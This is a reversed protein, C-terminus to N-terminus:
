EGAGADVKPKGAGSLRDAYPKFSIERGLFDTVLEAAPKAGGQSLVKDRYAGSTEVNRLGEAEFRTFMDTAIALSWQYTYYIASYGNLHGFSTFFHAEEQPEFRTFERTLEDSMAKIDLGQPDRNYLNLSLAAFMLQRRTGIGLGFDRAAIMRELLDQPLTEGEANRAFSSITEYDWVWEQLMQSPAEVFDWETSIGSVNFWDHGGALLYHILHGFEHLFTVVQSHQMLEEGRPFNCLLSAMPLQEGAIGNQMPFVAAHQYKGERPHMDLYFRGILKDGDWLEFAEVEEQWTFTEWPKITLGFLDQILTLMGDRTASYNFYQRVIKSDVEFHEQRVKESLFARQWAEVREADPQDHRLRELLTDYDRDQAETTYEKLESLFNDVRQPSGVMKDATVLEAYNQFGLLQALEFRLALLKELIELNQPYARNSYLLSMQRRLEDDEAYTFFPFLDPYQTSIRIVGDEDPQHAAIYDEPLGALQDVSELELYRVDDVINRDFEQGVAVIEENLEKVRARTQEDKDVGSLRFTLLLKEVFRRMGADAGNLDAQSVHQYIQRSLTLDSYKSTLAQGCADGADRVAEDPHVAALTGSRNSMNGASVIQSNLVRLYNDADGVVDAQELWAIAEDLAAVEADCAAKVQAATQLSQMPTLRFEPKMVQAPEGGEVAGTNAPAAPIQAADGSQGSPGCATAFVAAIVATITM